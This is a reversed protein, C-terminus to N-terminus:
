AKAVIAGSALLAPTVLEAPFDDGPAYRTGEVKVHWAVVYAQAQDNPRATGALDAAADADTLPDAASGKDTRQEPDAEPPLGETTVVGAPHQAETAETTEAPAAAPAPAPAAATNKRSM